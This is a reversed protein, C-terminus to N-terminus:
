QGLCADIAIVTRNKGSLAIKKSTEELNLAHVPDNITGFVRINNPLLGNRQKEVLATGVFPGLSDGTSRDTGVCVIDINNSKEISALGVALHAASLPDEWHIRGITDKSYRM